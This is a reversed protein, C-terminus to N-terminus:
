RRRLPDEDDGAQRTAPTIPPSQPPPAPAPTEDPTVIPGPGTPAPPAATSPSSSSSAGSPVAPTPSVPPAAVRAPVPRVVVRKRPRTEDQLPALKVERCASTNVWGYISSALWVAAVSAGVTVAEPKNVVNDQTAVYLASVTNTSALVLDVAPAWQNTTCSRNFTEGDKQAPKVFVFSCSAGTVIAIAAILAIASSASPEGERPSPALLM